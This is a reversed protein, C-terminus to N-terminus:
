TKSAGKPRGTGKIAAGRTPIQYRVNESSSKIRKKAQKNSLGHKIAFEQTRLDTM